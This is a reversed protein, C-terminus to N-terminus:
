KKQFAVMGSPQIIKTSINEMTYCQYHSILFKHTPSLSLSADFFHDSSIALSPKGCTTLFHSPENEDPLFATRTESPSLVSVRLEYLAFRPRPRLLPLMSSIRPLAMSICLFPTPSVRVGHDPAYTSPTHARVVGDMAHAHSRSPRSPASPSRNADLPHADLGSPIAAWWFDWTAGHRPTRTHTLSPCASTPGPLTETLSDRHSLRHSLSPSLPIAHSLSQSPPLPLPHPQVHTPVHEHTHTHPSPWRWNRLRRRLARPPLRRWSLRRRATRTCPRGPLFLLRDSGRLLLFFSFSGVRFCRSWAVLDLLLRRRLGRRASLFGRHLLLNWGVFFRKWTSPLLDLRLLHTWCTSFLIGDRGFSPRASFFFVRSIM